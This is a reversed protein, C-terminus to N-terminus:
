ADDPARRVGLEQREAHQYHDRHLERDVARASVERISQPHEDEEHQQHVVTRLCETVVQDALPDILTVAMTMDVGTPMLNAIDVDLDLVGTRYSDGLSARAFFDTVQVLPLAELHISREIGSMRLMDQSELYSADSWRFIKLAISNRGAKLLATIDFEAPTKAGQSYGALEGNIWVYMASRVAGFHLRVQRGKWAPNLDFTRRYSGVPNYDLPVDPWQADFPYREDLYIPKGYGMVEWNAPVPIVDWASDDFEPSEFGAPADAPKSVWQFKWDGDLSQFWPSRSQDGILAAERDDFHFATAHPELKNIGFVTHDTWHRIQDSASASFCPLLILCCLIQKLM